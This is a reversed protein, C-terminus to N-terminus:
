AVVLDDRGDARLREVYVPFLRKSLPALQLLKTVTGEVKVKGRAMAFTLNVKGQWYANATETSMAMTAHAAPVDPDSGRHVVGRPLDIVLASDPETCQMRLVLGTGHLKPALEPDEMATEFIGGIYRHLEDENAFGAM